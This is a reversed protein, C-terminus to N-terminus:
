INISKNKRGVFQSLRYLILLLDVNEINKEIEKWVNKQANEKERINQRETRAWFEPHREFNRIMKQHETLYM